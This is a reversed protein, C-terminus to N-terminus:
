FFPTLFTSIKNGTFLLQNNKDKVKDSEMYLLHIMLQLLITKNQIMRKVEASGKYMSMCGFMLFIM